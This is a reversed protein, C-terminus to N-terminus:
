NRKRSVLLNIALPIDLLFPFQGLDIKIVALCVVFQVDNEDGFGVASRRPEVDVRDLQRCSHATDTIGCGMRCLGM